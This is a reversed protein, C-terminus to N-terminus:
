GKIFFNGIKNHAADALGLEHLAQEVRAEKEAAPMTSPLRLRAVYSFTERVSLTGTLMEDQTVYAATGYALNSPHGNLMVEGSELTAARPMRGALADLLTTKGSGSPGMIALMNCPQVFGSVGTLINKRNGKVDVVSISLDRWTLTAQAEPPPAAAPVEEGEVEVDIAAFSPDAAAAAAAPPRFNLARRCAPFSGATAAPLQRRLERAAPALPLRLAPAARACPPPPVLAAAAASPDRSRAGKHM